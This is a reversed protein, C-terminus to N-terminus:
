EKVEVVPTGSDGFNSGKLDIPSWEWTTDSLDVAYGDVRRTVKIWSPERREWAFDHTINLLTNGDATLWMSWPHVWASQGVGLNRIPQGKPQYTGGPAIVEPRQRTVPIGAPPQVTQAQPSATQPAPETQTAERKCGAVALAAALFAFQRMM